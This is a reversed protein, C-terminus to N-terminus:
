PPGPLVPLLIPLFKAIQRLTHAVTIGYKNGLYGENAIRDTNSSAVPYFLIEAIDMQYFTSGGLLADTGLGVTGVGGTGVPGTVTQTGDVYGTGTGANFIGTFVHFAGSHDVADTAGTGAYVEFFGGPMVIQMVLVPGNGIFLAATPAGTPVKAVMFVTCPQTAPLGAGGSQLRSSVGDFRFVPLGNIVNLKYIAGNGTPAYLNVTSGNSDPVNTVNAGDALGLPDAKWWAALGPIVPGTPPTYGGSFGGVPNWRDPLWRDGRRRFGYGRDYNFRDGGTVNRDGGRTSGGVM